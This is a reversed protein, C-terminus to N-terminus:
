LIQIRGVIEEISLNSTDIIYKKDIDQKKIKQLPIKVREGMRCDEPRQMDREILTEEDAILVVYKMDAIDKFELKLKEFDAKNIIYNFVVDYGNTIFNKILSISNKWFIELHNNEKWPSVYGSYVMHYVEDGEILACKENKNALCKSVSSKGVGAPGTILYLKNM